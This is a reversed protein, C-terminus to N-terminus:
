EQAAGPTTEFASVCQGDGDLDIGEPCRGDGDADVFEACAPGVFGLDDVYLPDANAWFLDLETSQMSAAEYRIDVSTLWQGCSASLDVVHQGWV